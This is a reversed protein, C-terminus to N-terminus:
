VAVVGAVVEVGAGAGDPFAAVGGAEAAFAAAVGSALAAALESEAEDLVASELVASIVGTKDGAV